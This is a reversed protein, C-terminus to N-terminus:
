MAIGFPPAEPEIGAAKWWILTVYLLMWDASVTIAYLSYRNGTSGTVSMYLM